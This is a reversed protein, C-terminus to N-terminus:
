QPTPERVQALIWVGLLGLVAAGGVFVAPLGFAAAIGAGILPGTAQGLAMASATVGFASGQQGPRAVLGVAANAAPILGGFFLGQAARLAILQYPSHAFVQSAYMLAAGFACWVLVPRYGRRDALRSYFLSAVANAAAGGGGCL